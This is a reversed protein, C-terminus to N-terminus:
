LQDDFMRRYMDMQGIDQHKLQGAKLDILLYCKLIYNYFVFDIYFHETETSIRYQRAFFTFGKPSREMVAPYSRKPLLLM